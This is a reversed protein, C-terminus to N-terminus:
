DEFNIREKEIVLPRKLVQTHVAGIYEGLIGIFMLELSGMFFIGIVVPAMGVAFSKWFILKYVLYFISVLLSIIGLFFGTMTALRMPIISFSTLGTMALDYLHYLNLHSKGFKRQPQSFEIKTPSFGLESILGRFYPYSDNLKKLENIFSRDYLGFGTFHDILKVDAMANLLRYYITRLAYIFRNEESRTKVAVVLKDGNEWRKILQPILDPPDQFDCAMNIIADGKAQLLAHYPSRIHGFNRMNAIIKLNKDKQALSKLNSLTQDTSANDIFIHEYQYNPFQSLVAKVNQYLPEVNQEENFCPTVISILTM